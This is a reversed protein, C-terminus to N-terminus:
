LRWGGRQPRMAVNKPHTKRVNSRFNKASRGKNVGQRHPTGRM